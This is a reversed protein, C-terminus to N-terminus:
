AGTRPSAAKPAPWARTGARCGAPIAHTIRVAHGEKLPSRGDQEQKAEADNRAASLNRVLDRELLVSEVEAAVFRAGHGVQVAVAPEVDDRSLVPVLRRGPALVAEPAKRCQVVIDVYEAVQRQVHVAVALRVDDADAVHAPLHCPKAIGALGAGLPLFGDDIGTRGHLESKEDVDIVVPVCRFDQRLEAAPVVPRRPVFNHFFPARSGPELVFDILATEPM